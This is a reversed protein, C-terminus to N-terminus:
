NIIVELVEKYTSQVGLKEFFKIINLIDRELLEKSNPTKVLTSQSFDILFPKEEFNLINFSSLDGHILGEKYLKKVEAILLNFFRKSDKPPFDKLVLAPENEGIITEVIINDKFTLPKPANVGAKEAYKLNRFERQTWAYIIQRRHHKLYSYRPDKKIYNYMRKFDCNQVRYIKIILKEIGKKAIFVNSEKGVKYPSIIDDFVGQSQLEFLNRETHEDFVGKATKFREQYTLTVMLLVILTDNLYTKLMLFIEERM